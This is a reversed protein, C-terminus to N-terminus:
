SKKATGFLKESSTEFKKMAKPDDYHRITNPHMGGVHFIVFPSRGDGRFSYENVIVPQPKRIIERTAVGGPDDFYPMRKQSKWVAMTSEIVKLYEQPIGKSPDLGPIPFPGSRHYPSSQPRRPELRELGPILDLKYNLKPPFGKRHGRIYSVL